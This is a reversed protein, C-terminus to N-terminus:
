EAESQYWDINRTLYMTLALLMFLLISGFLLALDELQVIVYLYSYLLFLLGAMILAKKNARLIKASYSM